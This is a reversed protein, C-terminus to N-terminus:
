KSKVKPWNKHAATKLSSTEQNWLLSTNFNDGNFEGNFFLYLKGDIIDYTEPNIPFKAEKAAVGWACYGGFQPLYKTPNGLFLDRNQNNAFRYTAGEYKYTITPNGKTPQSNFYAVVDYGGIALGKEDVPPTQANVAWNALMILATM